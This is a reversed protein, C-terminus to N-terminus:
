LKCPFKLQWEKLQQDRKLVLQQIRVGEFLSEPTVGGDDDVAAPLASRTEDEFREVLEGDSFYSAWWDVLRPEALELMMLSPLFDRKQNNVKPQSPLLNWLDNCPWATFPFCHDIDFSRTLRKGTWVCFLPGKERLQEARRRVVTTDHQPELWQLAKRHSDWSSPPSQYGRMIHIWENIVAPEIWPAYRGMANWLDQPVSFTGLSWLFAEDLRVTERVRVPGNRRCPFVQKDSQPYTIYTAPMKCICQAADRLARILNEADKGTFRGGVCLDFPSRSHLGRFGDKAFSLRKNGSPLQPLGAGILPQFARVWFLAVLGLPLEVHTEDASRRAFGSASDAIRLLTRLLALKYTSSKHDNLVIHRLLPLAGTGDDPLQLWIVEWWIDDRGLVDAQQTIQFTQLGHGEALREIEGATAKQMPRGEPAPGHRLSVMMCGGPSLVSVLKRFARDRASKPLHTWVTSLWVLDFSLRSRLIKEIAPLRDDIWTIRPSQHRAMGAERMADSPEVAVVNYGKAAFWAADRGSGAGIDLVNSSTEPLLDLVTAHLAEFSLREYEPVLSEAALNYAAVVDRVGFHASDGESPTRAVRSRAASTKKDAPM